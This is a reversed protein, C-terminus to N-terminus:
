FVYGLSVNWDSVNAIDGDFLFQARFGSSHRLECGFYISKYSRWGQNSSDYKLGSTIESPTYTEHFLVNMSQQSKQYSYVYSYNLGGFVSVWEAPSYNLYVPLTVLFMSPKLVDEMFGTLYSSGSNREIGDLHEISGM